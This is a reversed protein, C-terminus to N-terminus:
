VKDFIKDLYAQTFKFRRDPELYNLKILSLDQVFKGAKVNARCLSELVEELVYENGGSVIPLDYKMGALVIKKLVERRPALLNQNFVAEQEVGEAWLFIRM